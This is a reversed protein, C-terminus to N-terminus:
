SDLILELQLAETLSLYPTAKLSCSNGPRPKPKRGRGRSKAVSDESPKPVPEKSEPVDKSAKRGRRKTCAVLLAPSPEAGSSSASVNSVCSVVQSYSYQCPLPPSRAPPPLLSMLSVLCLRVTPISSVLFDSLSRLLWLGWKATTSNGVTLFVHQEFFYHFWWTNWLWCLCM